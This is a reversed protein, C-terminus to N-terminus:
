KLSIGLRTQWVGSAPQGASRPGQEARGRPNWPLRGSFRRCV